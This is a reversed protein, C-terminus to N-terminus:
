RPPTAERRQVEIEPGGSGRFCSENQMDKELSESLGKTGWTQPVALVWGAESVGGRRPRSGRMELARSM